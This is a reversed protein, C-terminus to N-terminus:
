YYPSSRVLYYENMPRDDSLAPSSPSLAILQDISIERSLMLNLRGEPDKGPGWEIMDAVAASPM